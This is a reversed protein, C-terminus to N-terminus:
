GVRTWEGTWIFGRIGCADAGGVPALTLTDGDVSWNYDAVPGSNFCWSGGEPLRESYPHFIVEGVLHVQTSTATYDDLLYLGHGTNNSQPFVWRGPFQDRVWRKEFTMRYVGSPVVTSTPNGASGPKPAAAVDITRQWTGALASPPEPAPLVRARVIPSTARRGDKAIARVAFRHSGPTLWSSVLYGRNRGADDAAYVYPAGHEVWRVKGDILFDVEQIQDFSLSPYGLWHMRHPLVARGDMNSTITFSAAPATAAGSVCVCAVALVAIFLTRNSM